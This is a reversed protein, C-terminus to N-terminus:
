RPLTTEFGLGQAARAQMEDNTLLRHLGLAQMTALHLRDLSRCYASKVAPRVQTEAIEIIGPPCPVLEYPETQLVQDFRQILRRASATSLMKAAVRGHIHVLAELRALSSIVVHPEQAVLAITAATEPEPFFVKLLCSTDLYLAM